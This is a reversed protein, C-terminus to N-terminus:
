ECDEALMEFLAKPAKYTKWWCLWVVDTAGIDYASVVWQGDELQLIASVGNEFMGEKVADSYPTISYDIDKGGKQQPTAMVFAFNDLVSITSVVFQVKQSLDAEVSPRLGDLVAKRLATGSEPHVVKQASAFPIALVIALISLVQKM